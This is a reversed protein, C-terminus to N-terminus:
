PNMGAKKEAHSVYHKLAEILKIGDEKRVWRLPDSPFATIGLAKRVAGALRQNVAANANGDLEALRYALKWAYRQQKETMMDPISERKKPQYNGQRVLMKRLEAEVARYESETLESVHSKGTMGHVLIHFNDEENGSEVLNLAAALAYLRRVDTKM